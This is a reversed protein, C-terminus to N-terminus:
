NRKGGKKKKNYKKYIRGREEAELELQIKMAYKMYSAYLSYRDPLDIPLEQALKRYYAPIEYEM